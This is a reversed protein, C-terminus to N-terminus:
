HETYRIAVAVITRAYIPYSSRSWWPGQIVSGVRRFKDHVVVAADAGLKAAENRIAQEMEPVTPNGSPELFVEGLKDHPRRPVQRLIQVSNPDTAAFASVGLYRISSVSVTSCAAAGLAAVAVVVATGVWRTRDSIM